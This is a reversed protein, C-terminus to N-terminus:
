CSIISANRACPGLKWEKERRKTLHTDSFSASSKRHLVTTPLQLKIGSAFFQFRGLKTAFLKLIHLDYAKDHQKCERSRQHGYCSCRTSWRQFTLAATFSEVGERYCTDKTSLAFSSRWGRVQQLRKCSLAEARFLRPKPEGNAKIEIPPTHMTIHMQTRHTLLGQIAIEGNNFM